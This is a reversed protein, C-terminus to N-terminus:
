RSSCRRGAWSSPSCAPPSGTAPTSRSRTRTAPTTSSATCRPSARRSGSATPPTARPPRLRRRGRRVRHGSRAALRRRRAPQPPRPPAPARAHAADLEFLARDEAAYFPLPGFAEDPDDMPFFGAAYLALAQDVDSTSLRGVRSPGPRRGRYGGPRGRDRLLDPGGCAVLHKGAYQVPRRVVLADACLHVRVERDLAAARMSGRTGSPPSRPPRGTRGARGCGATWGGGGAGCRATRRRREPARDAAVLRPQPLEVAAGSTWGNRKPSSTAGPIVASSIPASVGSSM